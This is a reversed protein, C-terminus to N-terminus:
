PDIEDRGRGRKTFLLVFGVAFAALPAFALLLFADSFAAVGFAHFPNYAEGASARATLIGGVLVPGAAGGLFFAGSFVGMGAGLEAPRLTNAAANTLPTQVFAFGASVGIMGLALLLVSNGTGFTSIALLALAMVALGALTPTRTGYQDSLRGAAPSLLASAVAGPTLALGAMGPSLGIERVALLSAFILASLNAGMALFAMAAIALYDRNAFLSPPVFPHEARCIWWAFAIAAVISVALYGMGEPSLLGQASGEAMALLLAGAATGLLVGGELDARREGTGEDRPLAHLFFPLLLLALVASGFFLTRWGMTDTLIGGIAPGAAAGIGVSSALLGFAGGRNGAPLEKAIVVSALAPVAAGGVAQVARGIILTVLDQSLACLLGGLAFVLLGSLLFRRAGFADSMGGYLPVAIGYALSFGTFVWAIEASSAAFEEAMDAGAVYIMSNSLVSLFVAAAIVPLFFRSTAGVEKRLAGTVPETM